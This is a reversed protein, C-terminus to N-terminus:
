WYCQRAIERSKASANSLSEQLLADSIMFSLSLNSRVVIAVQLSGRFYDLHSKNWVNLALLVYQMCSDRTERKRFMVKLPYQLIGRLKDDYRGGSLAFLIPSLVHKSPALKMIQGVCDDM